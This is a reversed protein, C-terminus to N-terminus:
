RSTTHDFLPSALPSQCEPQLPTSTLRQSGHVSWTFTLPMSGRAGARATTGAKCPRLSYRRTRRRRVERRAPGRPAWLLFKHHSDNQANNGSKKSPRYHPDSAFLNKRGNPRLPVASMLERELRGNFIATLECRVSRKKEHM